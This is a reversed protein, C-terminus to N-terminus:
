FNHFTSKIKIEGSYKKQERSKEMKNGAQSSDEQLSFNQSHM